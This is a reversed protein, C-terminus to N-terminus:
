YVGELAAITSKMNNIISARYRQAFYPSQNDSFIRNEMVANLITQLIRVRHVYYVDDPVYGYELRVAENYDQFWVTDVGLISLDLHQFLIDYPTLTLNLSYDTSQITTSIAFIETDELGRIHAKFMDASRLEAREGDLVDHWLITLAIHRDQEPTTGVHERYADYESVLHTLHELTNYYRSAKTYGQIATEFGMDELSLRSWLQLKEAIFKKMLSTHVVDPIYARVYRHWGVPGIFGRVVSSSINVEPHVNSPMSYLTRMDPNIAANARELISEYELDTGNRIGRLTYEIGERRAEHGIFDHMIPRVICRHGYTTQALAQEVLAVREKLPIFSKKAPNQSVYIYVTDAINAADQFLAMHGRTVPDYSGSCMIKNM